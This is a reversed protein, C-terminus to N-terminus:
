RDACSLPAAASWAGAPRPARTQLAMAALAGTVIVSGYTISRDVLAVSLATEPAIHALSTLLIAVGGEVAGIGGPLVPVTSLLAAVLTVLLIQGPGLHVGLAITVLGFRTADLTWVGISLGLLRPWRGLCGVSGERFGSYLGAVRAPLRDVLRAGASSRMVWLLTAAAALVVAGTGLTLATSALLLVLVVGLDLAREVVVTGFVKSGRVGERRRVLYARYLDGVRGPTVCNVFFSALLAGMLPATACREGANALLTRWRLTRLGVSLYLVCVAAAFPLPQAHRAREWVMSWDLHARSIAVAVAIGGLLLPLLTRLLARWGLQRRRGAIPESPGAVAERLMPPLM